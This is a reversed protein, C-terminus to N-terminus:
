RLLILAFKGQREGRLLVFYVGSRLGYEHLNLRLPKADSVKKKLLVRGTPDVVLIESSQGPQILVEGGTITPTVMSHLKIPPTEESVGFYYCWPSFTVCGLSADDYCDFILSAIELSDITGWYNYRADTDWMTMNMLSYDSPAIYNCYEQSGGIVAPDNTFITVSLSREGSGDGNEGGLAPHLINSVLKTTGGVNLYVDYARGGAAGGGQLVSGGDGGIIGAISNNSIPENFPPVFVTHLYIGYADGGNGAGLKQNGYSIYDGGRGAYVGNITNGTFKLMYLHEGRFGYADGGRGGSANYEPSGCIGPFAVVSEIKTNEIIVFNHMLAFIGYTTIGSDGCCCTPVCKFAEINHIYSNRVILSDLQGWPMINFSRIGLVSGTIEVYEFHAHVNDNGFWNIYIGGWIAHNGPLADTERPIFKITDFETGVAKIEGEVILDVFGPWEMGNALPSGGLTDWNSFGAENGIIIVTGPTITLEAGKTVLVDGTMFVTDSWTTDSTIVGYFANLATPLLILLALIVSYNLHKM